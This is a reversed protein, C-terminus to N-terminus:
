GIRGMNPYLGDYVKAKTIDGAGSWLVFDYITLSILKTRQNIAIVMYEHQIKIGYIVIEFYYM